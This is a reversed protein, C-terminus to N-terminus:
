EKLANAVDHLHRATEYLLNAYKEPHNDKAARAAALLQSAIYHELASHQELIQAIRDILKQPPYASIKRKVREWAELETGLVKLATELLISEAKIQFFTDKDSLLILCENLRLLIKTRIYTLKKEVNQALHACSQSSSGEQSPPVFFLKALIELESSLRATIEQIEASLAKRTEYTATAKRCFRVQEENHFFTNFIELEEKSLFSLNGREKLLMKQLDEKNQIHFFPSFDGKQEGLLDPTCHHKNSKSM